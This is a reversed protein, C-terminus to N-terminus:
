TFWSIIKAVSSTVAWKVKKGIGVPEIRIKGEAKLEYFKDLPNEAQMISAITNGNEVYINMTAEESSGPGIKTFVGNVTGAYGIATGDTLYVNVVENGYMGKFPSPLERGVFPKLADEIKSFLDENIASALPLLMLLAALLCIIRKM